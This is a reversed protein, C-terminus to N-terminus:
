GAPIEKQREEAANAAHPPPPAGGHGGAGPKANWLRLMLLAGIIAFPVYTWGWMGWGKADM